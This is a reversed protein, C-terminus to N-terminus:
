TRTTAGETGGYLADVNLHPAHRHSAMNVYVRAVADKAAGLVSSLMGVSALLEKSDTEAAAIRRWMAQELANFAAQVEALDFGALFREEAITEAHQVLHVAERARVSNLVLNFLDTLYGRTTAEGLAHYHPHVSPHLEGYAEDVIEKAASSLVGEVAMIGGETDERVDDL